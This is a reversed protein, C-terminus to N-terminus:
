IIDDGYQNKKATGAAGRTARASPRGGSPSPPPEPPGGRGPALGQQEAQYRARIQAWSAHAPAAPAAPQEPALLDQLPDADAAASPLPSLPLPSPAAPMGAGRAPAKEFAPMSVAPVGAVGSAPKEFLRRNLTDREERTFVTGKSFRQLFAAQQALPSHEKAGNDYVDHLCPRNSLFQGVLSGIWASTITLAVRQASQVLKLSYCASVGFGSGAFAGVASNRNSRATGQELIEQEKPTPEYRSARAWYKLGIFIDTAKIHSLNAKYLAADILEHDADTRDM